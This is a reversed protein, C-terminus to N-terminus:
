RLPRLLFASPPRRRVRAKPVRRTSGVTHHHGGGIASPRQIGVIIFCQRSFGTAGCGETTSVRPVIDGALDEERCYRHQGRRGPQPQHM